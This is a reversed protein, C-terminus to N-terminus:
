KKIEYVASQDKSEGAYLNSAFVLLKAMKQVSTERTEKMQIDFIVKKRTNTVTVIRFANPYSVLAPSDVYLVNGKQFIKAAHYHGSFVAIPNKYKEIVAQVEGANQLRHSESPFPEIIPVHMLILVTDNKADSLEEDLWALQEKGVYGQSTLRESIITDLVIVKYGKRPVFSYYRDRGQMNENHSGLIDLYLEKTLFGGVCRDHNGFAFYWPANLKEIHPLVANLEKEFPKDILDGTFMVFNVNPTENIQQVADDLLKPSEATMKFTTNSGAQLFHVDSVQVFKLSSASYCQLGYIMVGSLALTIVANMLRTLFSEKKRYKKRAM